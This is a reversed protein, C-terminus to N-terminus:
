HGRSEHQFLLNGELKRINRRMRIEEKRIMRIRRVLHVQHWSRRMLKGLGRGQQNGTPDEILSLHHQPCMGVELKLKMWFMKMGKLITKGKKLIEVPFGRVRESNVVHVYHQDGEVHEEFASDVLVRQEVEKTNLKSFRIMRCVYSFPELGDFTKVQCEKRMNKFYGVNEEASVSAIFSGNKTSLSTQVTPDQEQVPAVKTVVDKFQCAKSSLNSHVVGVHDVEMDKPGNDKRRSSKGQHKLVQVELWWARDSIKM